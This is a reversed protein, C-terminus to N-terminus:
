VNSYVVTVSKPPLSAIKYAKFVAFPQFVLLTVTPSMVTKTFPFELVTAPINETPPLPANIVRSLGITALPDSITTVMAFTVLM